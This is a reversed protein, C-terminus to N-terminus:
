GTVPEISHRERSQEGVVRRMGKKTTARGLVMIVPKTVYSECPCLYFIKKVYKAIYIKYIVKM